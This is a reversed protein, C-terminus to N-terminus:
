MVEWRRGRAGAPVCISFRLGNVPENEIGASACSGSADVSALEDNGM